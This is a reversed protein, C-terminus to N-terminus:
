PAVVSFARWSKAFAARTYGRAREGNRQQRETRINFKRSLLRGMAQETLEGRDSSFGWKYAYTTHLKSVLDRTPIFGEGEPWVDHIDRILQIHRAETTLGAEKDAEQDALDAAILSRVTAPWYDGGAALAVRYLPEWREKNRGKLKATEEYETFDPRHTRVTERVVDAWAAIVDHLALADDEIDQWDSDAAEGDTDPLLLVTLCRSRVDPPLDPSNGAMAVPGYTSMNEIRFDAGPVSVLVPRSAGFRYGSNLVALLDDTGERKANLTRDTEDILLTAPGDKLLRALLAPSTLQAAQTARHTLRQLHDLVTTKDSGPAASDILLRPTTYTEAVLYTHAAWLTLVDLDSDQATKIYTGLWEKVTNLLGEGDDPTLSYIYEPDLM